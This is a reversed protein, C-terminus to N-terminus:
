PGVAPRISYFVQEICICLTQFYGYLGAGALLVLVLLLKRNM